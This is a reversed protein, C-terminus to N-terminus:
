VTAKEACVPMAYVVSASSRTLARPSLGLMCPLSPRTVIWRPGTQTREGREREREDSGERARSGCASRRRSGIERECDIAAEGWWAVVSEADSSPEAM